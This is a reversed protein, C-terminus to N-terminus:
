NEALFWFLPEGSRGGLLCLAVARSLSLHLQFLPDVHHQGMNHTHIIWAGWLFTLGVGLKTLPVSAAPGMAGKFFARLERQCGREFIQLFSPEAQFNKITKKGEYSEIILNQVDGQLDTMQRYFRQTYTTIFFFIVMCGLLPLFAIVLRPDFDILRPLLVSLGIIINGVQLLGFGVLARLHMVDTVLHQYIQGSSYTQYRWPSSQELRMALEEQLYGQLERAPWFFLIRSFTRFFVIGLAILFYKAYPIEATNRALVLEGLERAIFPLEVQFRHTLFLACTALLYVWWFERAQRGIVGGLSLDLRDLM